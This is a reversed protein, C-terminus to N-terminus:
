YFVHESICCSIMMESVGCQVKEQVREQVWFCVSHCVNAFTLLEWANQQRQIPGPEASTLSSFRVRYDQWWLVKNWDRQEKHSLSLNHEVQQPQCQMQVAAMQHTVAKYHSNHLHQLCYLLITSHHLTFCPGLYRSLIMLGFFQPCIKAGTHQSAWKLGDSSTHQILGRITTFRQLANLQQLLLYRTGIHILLVDRWVHMFSHVKLIIFDLFASNDTM